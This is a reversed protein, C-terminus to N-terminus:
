IEKDEFEFKRKTVLEIERFELKKNNRKIENNDYRTDVTPKFALTTYGAIKFRKIDKELSSTKGSFMSGTHIILKGKYQHM